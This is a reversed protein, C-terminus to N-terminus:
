AEERSEVSEQETQEQEKALDDLVSQVVSRLNFLRPVDKYEYTGAVILSVWSKVIESNKTFRFGKKMDLKGKKKLAIGTIFSSMLGM